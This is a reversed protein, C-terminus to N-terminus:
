SYFQWTLLLFILMTISFITLVYFCKQLKTLEVKKWKFLIFAITIVAIVTLIYNTIIQPLVEAYGRESNSLMRIILVMINVIFATGVINLLYIWKRLKSNVQKRKKNILKTIILVFPSIIFFLVCYAFLIASIALWYTNNKM